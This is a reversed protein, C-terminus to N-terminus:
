KKNRIKEQERYYQYWYYYPAQWCVNYSTIWYSWYDQVTM